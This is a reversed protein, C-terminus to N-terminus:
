VLAHSGNPDYKEWFYLNKQLMQPAKEAFELDTVPTTVWVSLDLNELFSEKFLTNFCPNSHKIM